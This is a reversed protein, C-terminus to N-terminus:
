LGHALLFPKVAAAPDPSALIGAPLLDRYPPGLFREDLLLIACKDSGSRIPRGMAQLVKNMAPYTYGYARGRGPFRGELYGIAAEVELDPPALPLGVVIVASLLNDRYDVGEALSGGLVGFLIAGKRRRAGELTDLVRDRDAKTWGPDEVVAEKDVGLADLESRVERLMAYSPTFVAVNGRTAHLTDAVVQGVRQWLAPGRDAYRTTLGQAVVILRNEPPFPSPYSRVTTRDPPMALIDRVMEPPRLTGSVLVASHVQEFVTKAAVGPDLLRLQLTAMGVAGGLSEWEVFRLAAAGFRAWDELAEQLAESHVTADAGKRLKTALARLDAIADTLGRRLGLTGRNRQAEFAAALDDVAVRAVRREDSGLRASEDRGAAIAETALQTLAAGLAEVDREVSREKVSRAEGAVMDLLFSSVRHSHEQRIRDPLNHAEDVVLICDSLRLGLRALSQERIDSFLHNYDAVVVQADKAAALAVLHPCLHAQRSVHMLEEVHLVGRRVSALTMDDVDGLYSCSKSRTEASCFEPFRAPHMDVAEPRLCMDRKAVLDVLAISAGRRDRILRVTEVAIRHQSQRSTLFLVTKKAALAHEIAPALTAATKGLGTPAQAVLHKGGQVAMAVDRTLRLQADRMEDHPFLGLQPHPRGSTHPVWSSAHPSLPADFRPAGALKLGLRGSLGPGEALRAQPGRASQASCRICVMAGKQPRMLGKCTPCYAAM